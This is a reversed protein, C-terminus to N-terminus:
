EDPLSFISRISVLGDNVSIEQVNKQEGYGLEKGRKDLLFKAARFRTDENKSGLLTVVVEEAKHLQTERIENWLERLEKDNQLLVLIERNTAELLKQLVGMNGCSIEMALRIKDPSKRNRLSVYGISKLQKAARAKREQKEKATEM